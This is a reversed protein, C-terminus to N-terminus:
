ISISGIFVMSVLDSPTVGNDNGLGGPSKKGGQEGYKKNRESFRIMDVHSILTRM